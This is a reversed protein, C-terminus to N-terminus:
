SPLSYLTAPALCVCRLDSYVYTSGVPNMLTQSMLSNYVLQQCTFVLQPYYLQSEPCIEQYAPSPPSHAFHLVPYPRVLCLIRLTDLM